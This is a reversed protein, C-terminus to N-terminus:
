AERRRIDILRNRADVRLVFVGHVGDRAVFPRLSAAPFRIRRGQRDQALVQQADGRYMRRYEVASISLDVVFEQEDM